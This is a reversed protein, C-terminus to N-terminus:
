KGFVAKLITNSKLNERKAAFSQAFVEANVRNEGSYTNVEYGDGLRALANNAYETCIDMMEKSKLLERVGQRNLEFKVKAM